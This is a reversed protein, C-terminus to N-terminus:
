PYRGILSRHGLSLNLNPLAQSAAGKLLNDIVCVVSVRRPDHQDVSAGGIVARPSGTVDQVRPMDRGILEILSANTYFDEYLGNVEETTVPSALECLVTLVIGRFFPAVSPAFRVPRGLHLSVERQHLHGNLAYPLIGDRLRDVDNKPNPVSGAGSYGSVGFCHPTGALRGVIPALALQMATAYCGPNSIRRAGRVRDGHLEPVSYVWDRDFRMDASVDILVEPAAGAADLEALFAGTEGNPMALFLVDPCEQAVEAPDPDSYNLRPAHPVWSGTKSASCALTLAASPHSALLRVLEDGVYGRAGVVGVTRTLTSPM